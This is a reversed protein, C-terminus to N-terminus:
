LHRTLKSSSSWASERRRPGLSDVLDRVTLTREDRDVREHEERGVLAVRYRLPPRLRFSESNTARPRSGHTVIDIRHYQALVPVGRGERSM